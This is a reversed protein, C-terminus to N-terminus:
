SAILSSARAFKAITIGTIFGDKVTYAIKFSLLSEVKNRSTFDKPSILYKLVIVQLLEGSDIFYDGMKTACSGRILQNGENKICNKNGEDVVYNPAGDIFNVTSTVNDNIELSNGDAAFNTLSYELFDM